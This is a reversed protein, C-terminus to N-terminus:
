LVVSCMPMKNHQKAFGWLQYYLRLFTSSCIKMSGKEKGAINTSPGIVTFLSNSEGEEGGKPTYLIISLLTALAVLIWNTVPSVYSAVPPPIWDILFAACQDQMCKELGTGIDQDQGLSLEKSGM